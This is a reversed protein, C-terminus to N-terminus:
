TFSAEKCQSLKSVRLTSLAERRLAIHKNYRNIIDNDHVIDQDM